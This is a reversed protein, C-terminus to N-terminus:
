TRDEIRPLEDDYESPPMVPARGVEWVVYVISVVLLGVFIYFADM